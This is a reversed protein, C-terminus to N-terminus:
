QGGLTGQPALGLEAALAAAPMYGPLMRGDELFLAPTGRVGMRQGLRYHAAVPNACSRPEVPQGSKLRTLAVRPDEACWASVLKDMSGSGIGARPYALYRVEVGMENLAPVERHLRQCFGCDIDTFVNVVARTEGEPAFVIMDDRKVEDIMEVRRVARLDETRNQFGDALVAYLDGAILHSGDATAYYASADALEVAYLGAAAPRIAVIPMDVSAANLRAYIAAAQEGELIVAGTDAARVTSATALALLALAPLSRRSARAVLRGIRSLVKM